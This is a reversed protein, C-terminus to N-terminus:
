VDDAEDRTCATAGTESVSGADPVLEAVVEGKADFGEAVEFLPLAGMLHEEGGHNAKWTMKGQAESDTTAKGTSRRVKGQM